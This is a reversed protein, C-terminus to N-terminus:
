VMTGEYEDMHKTGCFAAMLTDLGLTQGAVTHLEYFKMDLFFFFTYIWFEKTQKWTHYPLDQLAKCM